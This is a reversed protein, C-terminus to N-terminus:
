GVILAQLVTLDPIYRAISLDRVGVLLMAGVVVAAGGLAVFVAACPSALHQTEIFHESDIHQSQAKM